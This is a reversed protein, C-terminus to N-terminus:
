EAIVSVRGRHTAYWLTFAGIVSVIAFVAYQIADWGILAHLTGASLSALASGGFVFLDNIGQVKAREARTHSEALLTTGGTFMFNWGVGVLVLTIGFHAVTIGTLAVSASFIYLTLGIMLIRVIGIKHLLTGTVFAPVTMALIHWQIVYSAVAPKFGCAVIAVPAATMVLHMLAFGGCGNAVAALFVPQRIIDKLPREEAGGVAEEEEEIAPFRVFSVPIFAALSLLVIGAYTGLFTVPESLANASNFYVPAFLAALIGGAIVYSVARSRYHDPVVEMAAFRYFQAGAQYCGMMLAAVCFLWFSQILIAASAVVGCLIGACIASYFGRRRGWRKMLLSMPMAMAATGIALMSIPLTTLAPVPTLMGGVLGGFTFMGISTSLYLAQSLVLLAVDIRYRDIKIM